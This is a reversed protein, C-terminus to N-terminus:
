LQQFRVNTRQLQAIHDTNYVEIISVMERTSFQVGVMKLYLLLSAYQMEM